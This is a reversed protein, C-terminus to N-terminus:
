ENKDEEKDEKKDEEKDEPNNTDEKKHEDAKSWCAYLDVDKEPMVYWQTPLYEAEGTKKTSWGTFKYGGCSFYNKNIKIKTGAYAPTESDIEKQEELTAENKDIKQDLSINSYKNNRLYEKEHNEISSYVKQISNVTKNIKNHYMKPLEKNM